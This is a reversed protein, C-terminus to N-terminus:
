RLGEKLVNFSRSIGPLSGEKEYIETKLFLNELNLKTRKACESAIHDIFKTCENLEQIRLCM